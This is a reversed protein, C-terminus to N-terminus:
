RSIMSELKSSKIRERDQAPIKKSISYVYEIFRIVLKDTRTAFEILRIAQKTILKDKALVEKSFVKKCDIISDSTVSPGRSHLIDFRVGVSPPMSLDDRLGLSPIFVRLVNCCEVSLVQSNKFFVEMYKDISPINFTRISETSFSQILDPIRRIFLLISIKRGTNEM